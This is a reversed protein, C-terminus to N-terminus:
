IKEQEISQTETKKTLYTDAILVFMGVMVSFDAMNFIGTEFIVFDMHMFDTVSGYLIRDYINGLGGGIICSLGFLLLMSMNKKSIIYYSAYAMILLPFLIMLIIYLPRPISDGLSLFAGTNEIKTLTFYHDIVSITENYQIEERAINKSIQDCGVNTLVISVILIIRLLRKNKM